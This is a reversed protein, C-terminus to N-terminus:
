GSIEIRDHDTWDGFSAEVLLKGFADRRALRDDARDVRDRLRGHGRLHGDIEVRHALL